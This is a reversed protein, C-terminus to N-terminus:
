REALVLVCYFWNTTCVSLRSVRCLIQARCVLSRKALTSVRCFCNTSSVRSFCVLALVRCLIQARCLLLRKALPSVTCPGFHARFVLSRIALALMAFSRTSSVHAFTFTPDVCPLCLM